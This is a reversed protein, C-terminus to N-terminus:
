AGGGPHPGCTRASASPRPRASTKNPWTNTLTRSPSKSVPWRCRTRAPAANAAPRSNRPSLASRQHRPPAVRGPLGGARGGSQQAVNTVAQTVALDDVQDGNGPRAAGPSERRDPARASRPGAARPPCHKCAKTKCPACFASLAPKCMTAPLPSPISWRWLLTPRAPAAGGPHPHGITAPGAAVPHPHRCWNPGRKSNKRGPGATSACALTLCAFGLAIQHPLTKLCLM